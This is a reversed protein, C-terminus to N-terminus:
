ESRSDHYLFLCYCEPSSFTMGHPSYRSVLLFHYRSKKRTPLEHVMCFVPSQKGLLQKQKGSVSRLVGNEKKPYVWFKYKTAMDFHKDDGSGEDSM